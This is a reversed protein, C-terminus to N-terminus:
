KQSTGSLLKSQRIMAIRHGVNYRHPSPSSLKEFRVREQLKILERFRKEGMWENPAMFAFFSAKLFVLRSITCVFNLTSDPDNPTPLDDRNKFCEITTPEAGDLYASLGKDVKEYDAKAYEADGSPNGIWPYSQAVPIDEGTGRELLDVLKQLTRIADVTKKGPAEAKSKDDLCNIAETVIQDCKSILESLSLEFEYTPQRSLHEFDCNTLQNVICGVAQQLDLMYDRWEVCTKETPLFEYKLAGFYDQLLGRFRFLLVWTYAIEREKLIQDEYKQHTVAM